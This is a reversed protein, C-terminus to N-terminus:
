PEETSEPAETVEPEDTSEPEDTAEVEDVITIFVSYPSAVIEEDDGSKVGTISFEIESVDSTDSPLTYSLTGTAALNSGVLRDMTVNKIEIATGSEAEWTFLVTDGPMAETINVSFESIIDEVIVGTDDEPQQPVYLFQGVQIRNADPLCNALQLTTLTTNTRVSINSLTDGVQVQYTEWDTRLVCRDLIGPTPLVIMTPVAIPLPTLSVVPTLSPTATVIQIFPTQTPEPSSTEIVEEQPTCAIMGLTVILLLVFVLKHQM